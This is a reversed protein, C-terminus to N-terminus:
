PKVPSKQGIMAANAAATDVFAALGDATLGAARSDLLRGNLYVVNTPVTRVGHRWALDRSVGADVAVVTVDTRAKAMAELHPAQMACTPCDEGTFAILVPKRSQMLLLWFLRPDHIATVAGTAIEVRVQETLVVRPDAQPLEAAVMTAALAWIIISHRM